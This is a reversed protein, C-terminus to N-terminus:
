NRLNIRFSHQLSRAQSRTFPPGPLGPGNAQSNLPTGGSTAPNYYYPPGYGGSMYTGVMPATREITHVNNAHTTNGMPVGYFTNSPSSFFGVRRGPGYAMITRLRNSTGNLNTTWFRYGFSNTFAGGFISGVDGFAHNCGLNHGIEHALVSTNVYPAEIVNFGFAPAPNDSTLLWSTGHMLNNGSEPVMLTVLDARHQERLAHIEPTQPGYAYTMQQLDTTINGTSGYEIVDSHMLRIRASTGSKEFCANIQSVALRIRTEVGLLGALQDRAEPTYLIMTGIVPPGYVNTLQPWPNTGILTTTFWPMGPVPVTQNWPLQPLSVVGNEPIESPSPLSAAFHEQHEHSVNMKDHDLEVVAYRDPGAYNIVFSRGDALNVSGGFVGKHTVLSVQSEPQGRIIGIVSTFDDAEHDAQKFDITVTEGPFLEIQLSGRPKELTRMVKSDLTVYRTRKAVNAEPVPTKQAEVAQAVTLPAVLQPPSGSDLTLWAALPMFVMAGIAAWKAIKKSKESNKVSEHCGFGALRGHQVTLM